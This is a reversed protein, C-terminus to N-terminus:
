LWGELRVKDVVKVRGIGTLEVDFTWAVFTNPVHIQNEQYGAVSAPEDETYHMIGCIM